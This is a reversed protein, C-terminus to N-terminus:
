SEAIEFLDLGGKIVALAAWACDNARKPGELNIQLANGSGAPIPAIVTSRLAKLADPRSALGNLLEHTIGDGSVPVLADFAEYKHSRGLNRANQPSSAPGTDARTM